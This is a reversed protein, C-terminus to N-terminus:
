LQQGFLQQFQPMTLSVWVTRSAASSIYGDSGQADGIPSLGQMALDALLAIYDDNAAGYTSWLGGNQNLTALETQRTGWDSALLPTPDNARPLIFAVSISGTAAVGDTIPYAAEPTTATTMGYSTFDLFTSNKLETM